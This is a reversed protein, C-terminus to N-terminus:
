PNRIALCPTYSFFGSLDQNKTQVVPFISNGDVLHYLIPKSPLGFTRNQVHSLWTSIDLISNSINTQLKPPLEPSSICIQSDNIYLHFKFGNSHILDGLSPMYISLFVLYQPWSCELMLIDPAPSLYLLHLYDM